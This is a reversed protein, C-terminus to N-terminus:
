VFERVTDANLNTKAKFKPSFFGYYDDENLRNKLLYNRIPWYERWDPRANALNDLGIFGRDSDRQTQESYYIQHIHIGVM